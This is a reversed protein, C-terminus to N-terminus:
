PRPKMHRALALVVGPTTSQHPITAPHPEHPKLVSAARGAGLEQRSHRVPEAFGLRVLLVSADGISGRSEDGHVVPLRDAKERDDAVGRVGRFKVDHGDTGLEM